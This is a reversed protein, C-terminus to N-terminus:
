SWYMIEIRAGTPANITLEDFIKGVTSLSVNSGSTLTYINGSSNVLTADATGINNFTAAQFNEIKVGSNADTVSQIQIKENLSDM